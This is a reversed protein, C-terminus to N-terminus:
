VTRLIRSAVKKLSGPCTNGTWGSWLSSPWTQCVWSGRHVVHVYVGHGVIGDPLRDRSWTQHRKMWLHRAPILFRTSSMSKLRFYDVPDPFLKVIYILVAEVVELNTVIPIAIIIKDDIIIVIIDIAIDQCWHHHFPLSVDSNKGRLAGCPLSSFLTGLNVMTVIELTERKRQLAWAMKFLSFSKPKWRIFNLRWMIASSSTDDFTVCDCSAMIIHWRSKGKVTGRVASSATWHWFLRPWRWFFYRPWRRFREWWYSRKVKLGYFFTFIIHEMYEDTFASM